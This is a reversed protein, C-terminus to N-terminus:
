AKRSWFWYVPLGPLEEHAIGFDDGVLQRQTPDLSLLVVTGRELIVRTGEALRQGADV